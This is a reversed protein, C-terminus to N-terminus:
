SDHGVFNEGGSALTEAVFASVRDFFQDLSQHARADLVNKFVRAYDVDNTATPPCRARYERKVVGFVNEIANM